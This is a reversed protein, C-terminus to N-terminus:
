DPKDAPKPMLPQTSDEFTLWTDWVQLTRAKTVSRWCGEYMAGRITGGSWSDYVAECEAKRYAAWAVQAADFAAPPQKVVGIQGNDAAAEEAIRRRAAALYRELEKDARRSYEHACANVAPTSGDACLAPEDSMAGLLAIQRVYAAALCKPAACDERRRLWAREQAAVADPHLSRDLAGAYAAALQSDLNTLDPDNCVMHEVRSAAKACDFSAAGAPTASVLALAGIIAMLKLTSMTKM